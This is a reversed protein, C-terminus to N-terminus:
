NQESYSQAVRQKETFVLSSSNNVSYNFQGLLNAGSIIICGYVSIYSGKCYIRIVQM